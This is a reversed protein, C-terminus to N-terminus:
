RSGRGKRWRNAGLRQRVLSRSRSRPRQDPKRFARETHDVGSQTTLPRHRTRPRTRDAATQRTRQPRRRPRTRARASRRPRRTRPPPPPEYARGRSMAVYTLERDINAGAYLHAHDVTLGQAKHITVAYGHGLCREDLYTAPIERLQQNDLQVLLSRQEVDAHIVTATQGNRIDLKYDNRYAVVRDGPQFMGTPCEVGPGVIRGADILQERALRNLAAVDDHRAAVM